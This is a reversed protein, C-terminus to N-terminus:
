QTVTVSALRESGPAPVPIPPLGRRKLVIQFNGYTGSREGILRGNEIRYSHRETGYAFRLVGDQDIRGVRRYATAPYNWPAHPAHMDVLEVRGGADVKSVLLDHCWFNGWAGAGWDGLFQQYAEPVDDAPKEISVKTFLDVTYCNANFSEEEATMKVAVKTNAQVCASVFVSAVMLLFIRM